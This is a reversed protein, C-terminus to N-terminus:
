GAVSVAVFACCVRLMKTVAKWLRPVTYPVFRFQLLLWREGNPPEYDKTHNVQPDDSTEFHQFLSLQPHAQMWM